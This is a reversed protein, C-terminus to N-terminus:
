QFAMLIHCFWCFNPLGPRCSRKWCGPNWRGTLCHLQRGRSPAIGMHVNLWRRIILATTKTDNLLSESDHPFMLNGLDPDYAWEEGEGWTSLVTFGEPKGRSLYGEGETLNCDTSGGLRSQETSCVFFSFYGRLWFRWPQKTTAASDSPRDSEKCGWPSCCALGGQGEGDGLAQEFEHGNLWHHWGVMEAETTGKEQQGWDKEADPDRGILWRM